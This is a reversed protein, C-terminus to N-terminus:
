HLVRDIDFMRRISVNYSKQLMQCEKGFLDFLPSGYIHSNFIQYVKLKTQPHAFSFEQLIECNKQIYQARKIKIDKAMGNIKNEIVCGLHKGETVWPLKSGCLKMPPLQRNNSVFALCKTKSKRPNTPNTSFKLNHSAAFEECTGLMDQLGDISPACLMNDDSYGMIGRYDGNIWLGSRRRRLLIFLEQCYYCYAIASLIAGQRCGNTMPFCESFSNNWRVDAYQLMYIIILLRVFIKSLGGIILKM